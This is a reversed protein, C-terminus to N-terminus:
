RANRTDNNGGGNIAGQLQTEAIWFDRQTDIATNVSALQERADTLLEFVSALMGNYRLLVEDSIQKRLPVVEDRYHRAIDYTTRYASYAVRVDSRARLATDATRHVAQMYQAQARAVKAGGWDFLPLELSVQYGNERPKGSTSKNAYGADFVNIFGTARTLGLADATAETDRRAALVDLRQALAQAEANNMEQPQPPLDPLRDPLTFSQQESSLGLLRVLQERSALAEHRARALQTVAEQHFARERAQDLKSWNGAKAMQAALESSAEAAAQVQEAFAASQAAAVATFWARRTDGALQVAQAAAQLKAQEFRGAEIRSRAPLTLLGAIDFMIGRDIETEGGGRIRGFSLSPNRLRGAQVLDAESAGLEAFSAKLAPSNMLAIRVASDATLPQALLLQVQQDNNAGDRALAAPQGIREATLRSVDNMGGDASLSACGGLLLAGAALLPLRFHTM